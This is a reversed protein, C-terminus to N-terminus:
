DSTECGSSVCGPLSEVISQLLGVKENLPDEEFPSAEKEKQVATLQGELQM